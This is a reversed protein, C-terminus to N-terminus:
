DLLLNSARKFEEITNPIYDLMEEYSLNCCTEIDRTCQKTINTEMVDVNFYDKRLEVVFWLYRGNFTDTTFMYGDRNEGFYEPYAGNEGNQSEFKINLKELRKIMKKPKM